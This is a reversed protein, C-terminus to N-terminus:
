RRYRDPRNAYNMEEYAKALAEPGHKHKFGLWAEKFREKAQDITKADGFEPGPITVTIHWLWIGPVRERAYRIRGIYQGDEHVSYDNPGILRLTLM